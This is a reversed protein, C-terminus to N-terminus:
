QVPKEIDADAVSNHVQLLINDPLLGQQLARLIIKNDNQQYSQGNTQNDGPQQGTHDPGLQEAVRLAVAVNGGASTGAFIAEERALEDVKVVSAHFPLGQGASWLAGELREPDLVMVKVRNTKVDIELDAKVGIARVLSASAALSAELEVLSAQAQRLEVVGEAFAAELRKHLSDSLDGKHQVIIRADPEDEIWLGAFTAAEEISLEADLRGAIEQIEFRELVEEVSVGKAAAIMAADQTLADGCLVPQAGLAALAVIMLLLRVSGTLLARSFFMIVEM